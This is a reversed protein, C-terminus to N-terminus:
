ETDFCGLAKQRDFTAEMYATAAKANDLDGADLFNGHAFDFQDFEGQLLACSTFSDIRSFTELNGVPVVPTSEVGGCGSALVLTSIVVSVLVIRM